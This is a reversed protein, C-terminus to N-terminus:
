AICVPCDDDEGTVWEQPSSRLRWRDRDLQMALSEPIKFRSQGPDLVGDHAANNESSTYIEVSAFDSSGPILLKWQWRCRFHSDPQVGAGCDCLNKHGDVALEGCICAMPM